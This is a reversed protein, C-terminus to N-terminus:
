RALPGIYLHSPEASAPRAQLYDNEATKWFVGPSAQQRHWHYANVLVVAPRSPLSLLKRLLREFARREKSELQPEWRPQADDNAAFEVLVVDISRPLHRCLCAGPLFYLQGSCRRM